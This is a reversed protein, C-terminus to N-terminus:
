PCGAGFRALFCVFDGINLVPPATSGDCNADLDGAAFKTQFCVFDAVNLVPPVVSGDCNAYCACGRTFTQQGVLVLRGTPHHYAMAAGTQAQLGPSAVTAWNVAGLERLPSGAMVVAQRAPDYAIGQGQTTTGGLPNWGNGDWAWTDTLTPLGVGFGGYMITRRRAADYAMSHGVRIAPVSANSIRETWSAGDWEWTDNRGGGGFFVVRGRDSDYSMASGTRAAPGVPTELPTWALGDWAWTTCVTSSGGDTGVMIIRSGDFAIPSPFAAPGPSVSRNWRDGNWEWTHWPEGTIVAAVYVILGRIPDFALRPTTGIPHPQAPVESWSGGAAGDFLWTGPAFAGNYMRGGFAVIKGTAPDLAMSSSDRYGPNSNTSVQEWNGTAGDWEWTEVAAPPFPGGGYLVLRGRSPDAVLSHDGRGAPRVPPRLETWVGTRTDWEWTDHAVAVGPGSDLYGGFLIFTGRVPDLALPSFARPITPTAQPRPIWDAAVPDWEWVDGRCGQEPGVIRYGGFLMVRQSVPDFVMSAGQRAGIASAAARLSWRALGGDWEWTDGLERPAGGSDGGFLVVVGRVPDYAAAASDRGPPSVAPTRNSWRGTRGDWVWADNRRHQASPGTTGGFLLVTGRAIDAVMTLAERRPPQEDFLRWALPDCPQGQAALSLCLPIAVVAACPHM